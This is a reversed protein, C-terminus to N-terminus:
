KIGARYKISTWWLRLEAGYAYWLLTFAFYWWLLEVSFMVPWWNWGPFIHFPPDTVKVHLFFPINILWYWAADHHYYVYLEWRPRIKFFAVLWDGVDPWCGLLFGYGAAIHKAWSPLGLRHAIASM